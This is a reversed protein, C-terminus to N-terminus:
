DLLSDCRLQWRPKCKAAPVVCIRLDSQKGIACIPCSASKRAGLHHGSNSKVGLLRQTFLWSIAVIYPTCVWKGESVATPRHFTLGPYTDDSCSTHQGNWNREAFTLWAGFLQGVGFGRDLQSGSYELSNKQGEARTAGATVMDVPQISPGTGTTICFFFFFFFPRSM